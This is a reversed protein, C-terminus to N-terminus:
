TNTYTRELIALFNEKEIPLVMHNSLLIMRHNQESDTAVLVVVPTNENITLRIKKLLDYGNIDPLQLDLAILDYTGMECYKLGEEGSEGIKFAYGNDTLLTTLWFFDGQANRIILATKERSPVQVSKNQQDSTVTVLSQNRPLIVYFTSGQGLVSTVGVQGGQAEVIQKTLALGLGTGPYKKAASADLQQFEYFLKKIDAPHMGIGNDKVELRFYGNENQMINIKVTGLEPTFKLANSLYNYLVQKFRSPDIFITMVETDISTSLNIRKRISLPRVLEVVENVLKALNVNEPHFDMKGAEVKSLDLVDNILQLLHRASTLIDNLFENQELTIPGVERDQMLESFGIIANLPTRLEHSMNALFESKLRTAENARINQEQLEQNIKAQSAKHRKEQYNLLLLSLLLLVGGVKCFISVMLFTKHADAMAQQNRALLYAHEKENINNAISKIQETLSQEANETGLTIAARKGSNKNAEQIQHSMLLRARVKEQLSSFAQQQEPNNALLNKLRHLQNQVDDFDIESDALFKTNNTSFYDQELREGDIIDLLMSNTKEIIRHTQIVWDNAVLLRNIQQYVLYSSFILICVAVLFVINILKNKLLGTMVTM